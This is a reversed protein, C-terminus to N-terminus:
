RIWETKKRLQRRRAEMLMKLEVNEQEPIVGM